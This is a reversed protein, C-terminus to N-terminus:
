GGSALFDAWAAMMARRKDLADGRRYAREVENGVAHALAAEAIERPFPTTEGAWDRFSSRFGHVTAHDIGMRRLLMAMSMNSLPRDPKLGTFIYGNPSSGSESAMGTLLAVATDSLPVRHTKGTKMRSAPVTWLRGEIDVERWTARLVESTRAATLVTFELARAATAPRSRLSTMFAPMDGFPMAAHHRANGKAKRAPLLLSLTGRWRAPNDDTRLGRVKAADLVREIRGRVRSATEPKTGWIPRLVAVVDDVGISAVDMSWISAAYTALTNRWQQRHKANRWGNEIGDILDSAVSGFSTNTRDNDSRRATKPDVGSKVLARAKGAGDRAEALSTTSLAGLGLECRKRGFRYILRWSKAGSPAVHLYLGNGDAHLGPQKLTAVGRATLRHTARAM